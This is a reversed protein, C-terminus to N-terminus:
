SLGMNELSQIEGSVDDVTKKFFVHIQQFFKHATKGTEFYAFYKRSVVM